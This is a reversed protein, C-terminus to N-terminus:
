SPSPPSHSVVFGDLTPTDAPNKVVHLPVEGYYSSWASFTSPPGILYDCRALSYLDELVGGLGAVVALGPFAGVPVPEDSCVWFAVQKHAFLAAVQRMVQGYQEWSFYYRGDLFSAYDRRRVHTGVVIDYQSRVASMRRAIREECEAPPRFYARVRESHSWLAPQNRFLPGRFVTVSRERLRAAVEPQDLSCVMRAKEAPSRDLTTELGSRLIQVLPGTLRRLRGDEASRVLRSAGRQLWWRFRNHTLGLSGRTPYRCLVDRATTPFLNAYQAFGLNVVTAGHEEASAILSAFLFLQNALQGQSDVVLFVPRASV